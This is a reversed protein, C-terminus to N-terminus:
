GHKTDRVVSVCHSFGYNKASWIWIGIGFWYEPNPYLPKTKQHNTSFMSLPSLTGFHTSIIPQFYGLYMFIYRGLNDAWAWFNPIEIFFPKKPRGYDTHLLTLNTARRWLFFCCVIKNPEVNKMKGMKWDKSVDKAYILATMSGILNAIKPSM